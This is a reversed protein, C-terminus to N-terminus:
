EAGTKYSFRELNQKCTIIIVSVVLSILVLCIIGLIGALLKESSSSFGESQCSKGNRQLNETAHHLNLEAYIIEQETVSVCGEIGEPKM